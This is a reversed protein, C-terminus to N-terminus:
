RKKYPGTYLGVIGDKKVLLGEKTEKCLSVIDGAKLPLTYTTRDYVYQRRKYSYIQDNDFWLSQNLYPVDCLSRTDTCKKVIVETNPFLLTYFHEPAKQDQLIEIQPLTDCAYAKWSKAPRHYILYNIQRWAKMSNGGDISIVNSPHFVCSTQIINDSYNSSPWHGVIVPKDFIHSQNGFAPVTLCYDIDQEYLSGPQLGAHVFVALESDLIHPLNGLFNIEEPYQSYIVEKLHSVADITDYPLQLEQAMEIFISHSRSNLYWHMDEDQVDPTQWDQFLTDNNGACIFVPYEKSLALIYRLLPLSQSGKELIDGVIVLADGSKFDVQALFQLFGDKDGHLDSTVIVRDYISLDITKVAAFSM